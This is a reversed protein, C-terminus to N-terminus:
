NLDLSEFLELYKKSSSYFSTKSLWNIDSLNLDGLVTTHLSHLALDSILQLLRDDDATVLNPPRYVLIFRHQELLDSYVDFSLVEEDYCQDLIVNKFLLGDYIM